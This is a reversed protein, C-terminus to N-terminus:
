VQAFDPVTIDRWDAFEVHGADFFLERVGTKPNRRNFRGGWRYVPHGRGDLVSEALTGIAYWRLLDVHHKTGWKLEGNVVPVLDVAALRAHASQKVTNVFTVPQGLPQQETYPPEGMTTRGKAYLKLQESLTTGVRVIQLEFPLELECLDVFEVISSHTGKVLKERKHVRAM